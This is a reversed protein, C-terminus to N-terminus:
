LFRDIKEHWFAHSLFTISPYFLYYGAVKQIFLIQKRQFMKTTQETLIYKYVYDM